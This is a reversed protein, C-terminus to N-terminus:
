QYHSKNKLVNYLTSRFQVHHLISTGDTFFTTTIKKNGKKVTEDRLKTPTTNIERATPEGGDQPVTYEVFINGKIPDHERQYLKKPETKALKRNVKM